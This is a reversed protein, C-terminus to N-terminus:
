QKEYNDVVINQQQQQQQQGYYQGYQQSQQEPIQYQPVQQYGNYNPPLQAQHVPIAAPVPQYAMPQGVAVPQPYGGQVPQQYIMPQVPYDAQQNPYVVMPQNPMVGMPMGSQNIYGNMQHAAGMQHVRMM